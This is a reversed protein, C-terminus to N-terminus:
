EGGHRGHERITKEADDAGFQEILFRVQEARGGNNIDSAQASVTDHVVGGLALGSVQLQDALAVLRAVTAEHEPEAEAAVTVGEVTSHDAADRIRSMLAPVRDPHIGSSESRLVEDLLALSIYGDYERANDPLDDDTRPDLAKAVSDLLGRDGHHLRVGPLNGALLVDNIVRVTVDREFSTLLRRQPFQSGDAAPAGGFYRMGDLEDQVILEILEDDCPYDRPMEKGDMVYTGIPLHTSVLYGDTDSEEAKQILREIAGKTDRVLNAIVPGGYAEAEDVRRGFSSRRLYHDDRDYWIVQEDADEVVLLDVEVDADVPRREFVLRHAKPGFVERILEAASGANLRAEQYAANCAVRNLATRMQGQLDDADSWSRKWPNDEASRLVPVPQMGRERLEEATPVAAQEPRSNNDQENM